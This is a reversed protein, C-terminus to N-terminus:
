RRACTRLVLAIDRLHVFVRLQIRRKLRYQDMGLPPVFPESVDYVLKRVFLPLSMVPSLDLFDHRLDHFLFFATFHGLM